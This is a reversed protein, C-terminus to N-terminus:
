ETVFFNEFDILVYGLSQIDEQNAEWVGDTSEVRVTATVPAAYSAKALEANLCDKYLTFFQEYKEEDTPVEGGALATETWAAVLEAQKGEYATFANAFVNLKECTVTVEFTTDDVEVAEGVTYKTSAYLNKFFERYEAKLEESIAINSLSIDMLSDIGKEYVVASEEATGFELAVISTSDNKYVNDLVAKLYGGADFKSCAGLTGVLLMAVCFVSLKRMSKKM